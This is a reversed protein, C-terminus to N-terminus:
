ATSTFVSFTNFFIVKTHSHPFKYNQVLVSWSRKLRVYVSPEIVKFEFKSLIKEVEFEQYCLLYENLSMIVQFYM